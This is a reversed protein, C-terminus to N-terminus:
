GFVEWRNSLMSMFFSNFVTQLGIVLLTFAIVDEGKLPLVTFGSSAWRAVLHLSYAFGALFIITGLVAGRELSAHGLILKTVKDTNFLDAHVGYIRAFLWLYLIQYGVVVLLSGLIMSHFGPIYGINVRFYSFLMM